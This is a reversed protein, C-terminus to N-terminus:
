PQEPHQVSPTEDPAFVERVDEVLGQWHRHLRGDPDFIDPYQKRLKGSVQWGNDLLARIIRDADVDPMEIREKIAARAREHRQLFAAERSMEHEVTEKLVASLYHAQPTLDIFRWAHLADNEEEFVLNHEVGDEAVQRPGFRYASAYRQMFPRSFRELAQDYSARGKASGAITASVPIIINPPVVGDRSLADNILFRHVRGNGDSLPHIYVFAFSLVATRAIGPASRTRKELERLGEMMDTVMLFGPAIYHVVPGAMGSEGVFVPSKRLGIRLAAEGLIAHQLLQLSADSLPAALKGSHQGIVAAFRRIRDAKDSEREIQFSARSEKLTLWAACRLLLEAGFDEDLTQVGAAVDYVWHREQPRGLYVMPCLRPTGPLNDNVRWRRNRTPETASLYLEPAIADVYGGQATDPVDLRRGTIWEFFFATRRAYAGTPETRVWREIEEPGTREFLRSFFELHVREYKLGFEFHGRFSDEPRYANTWTLTTEDHTRLERRRSGLESRILLPQVPSVGYLEALRAFGFLTTM